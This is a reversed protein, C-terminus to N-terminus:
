ESAMRFRTALSETLILPLTFVDPHHSPLSGTAPAKVFLRPDRVLVASLFVVVASQAPKSTTVQSGFVAQWRLGVSGSARLELSCRSLPPKARRRGSEPRAARYLMLRFLFQCSERDRSIAGAM